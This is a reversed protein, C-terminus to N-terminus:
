VTVIFIFTYDSQTSSEAKFALFCTEDAIEAVHPITIGTGGHNIDATAERIKQEEQLLLGAAEVLASPWTMWGSFKVTFIKFKVTFGLLRLVTLPNFVNRLSGCKSPKILKWVVFHNEPSMMQSYILSLSSAGHQNQEIHQTLNTNQESVSNVATFTHSFRM